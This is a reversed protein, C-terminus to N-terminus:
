HGTSARQLLFRTSILAEREGQAMEHMKTLLAQRTELTLGKVPWDPDMADFDVGFGIPTPDEDRHEALLRFGHTSSADILEARTTVKPRTARPAPPPLKADICAERVVDEGRKMCKLSATEEWHHWWFNFAVHGGPAVIRALVGLAPELDVFQMSASAIAAVAHLERVPAGDLGMALFQAPRGALNTRALSLMAESPEVLIAQCRPHRALLLESTLGSGAGIDLVPGELSSPLLDILRNSLLSFIEWRHCLRDYAAARAEWIRVKDPDPIV